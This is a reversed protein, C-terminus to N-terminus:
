PAAPQTTTPGRQATETTAGTGTRASTRARARRPDLGVVIVSAVAVHMAALAGAAALGAAGAPGGLSVVLLVGCTVWWGVPRGRGGGSLASEAVGLNTATRPTSARVVEPEASTPDTPRALRRRFLARVPWAALTALAATVVIAAPGVATGAPGGSSGPSGSSGSSGPGGSPGPIVLEIGAIPVAIVWVVLAAAVATLVVSWVPVPRM